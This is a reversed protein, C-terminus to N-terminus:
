IQEKDPDEIDIVKAYQLPKNAKPKQDEDSSVFAADTKKEVKGLNEPNKIEMRDFEVSTNKTDLAVRVNMYTSKRMVDYGINLKVDDPGVSVVFMNEQFMSNNPSDGTLTIWGSWGVSLYRNVRFAERIYVSSHGYRYTDFVPLPTGDSYASAFYGIDQMWYKYQTHLKPGMRGIFQTDGTGYVAASGQMVFGFDLLKRNAKDEYRYLSQDIGAMYRLRMTGVNSSTIHETRMNWEGDHVYGATIFQRFRMDLKDALFDRKISTKDFVLEAVYKPMRYGMFWEDMFSNAGYRLFLNDDLQHKGNIIFKNKASGYMIQTDNFSSKFKAAAGFGFKKNYNIMPLLKLTSGNPTPLVLGPGAYMGMMSRSGFEPYNAEFYERHKNTYATVSPITFLYKDNYFVEADKATIIERTHDSNVLINSASIKLKASGDEFLSSRDKEDVIMKTFDPGLMHSELILKNHRDSTIKGSELILLGNESKANKASIKMRVGETNVKDMFISEENMNIQIYDGYVPMGDKTLVVNGIAKLINSERNYTMTDSKLTINKSPFTMVPNGIAEVENTEDNMKVEDCDLVMEKETVQEKVGGVLEAPQEESKKVEEETTTKEETAVEDDEEYDVYKIGFLSQKEKEEAKKAREQELKMMKEDHKKGRMNLAYQLRLRTEKFLPMHDKYKEEESPDKRREEVVEPATQAPTFYSGANLLQNYIDEVQQEAFAPTAFISVILLTTLIKKM